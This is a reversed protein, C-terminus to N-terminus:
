NKFAVEAVVARHDSGPADIVQRSLFVLEDSALIHDIPIGLPHPLFSPWTNASGTLVKLGTENRAIALTDSWTAANFDGILLRAGGVAKVTTAVEQVEKKQDARGEIMRPLRLHTAFLTLKRDGITARVAGLSRRYSAIPLHSLWHDLPFRSLILADSPEQKWSEVKYPYLATVADLQPRIRQVIELLVVIDADARRVFEALQDLKANNYYVNLLLIKFRPGKAEGPLTPQIWPWIIAVNAIIALVAVASTWYRQTMQTYLFLLLIAVLTPFVLHGLLDLLPNFRGFLAGAAVLFAGILAANCLTNAVTQMALRTRTRDM